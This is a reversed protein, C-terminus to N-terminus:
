NTRPLKGKEDFTSQIDINANGYKINLNKNLDIIKARNTASIKYYASWADQKKGGNNLIKDRADKASKIKEQQYNFMSWYIDHMMAPKKSVFKAFANQPTYPENDKNMRNIDEDIKAQANKRIEQMQLIKQMQQNKREQMEALIKKSQEIKKLMQMMAPNKKIQETAKIETEDIAFSQTASTLIVFLSLMSACLAFKRAM